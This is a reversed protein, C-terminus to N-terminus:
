NAGRLARRELSSSRSQPEVHRWMSPSFTAGNPGELRGSQNRLVATLCHRGFRLPFASPAKGWASRIQWRALAATCHAPARSQGVRAAQTRRLAASLQGFNFSTEEQREAPGCVPRRRRKQAAQQPEHENPRAHIFFRLGMKIEMIEMKISQRRCHRQPGPAGAAWHEGKRGAKPRWSARSACTDPAGDPWSKRPLTDALSASLKCCCTLRNALPALKPGLPTNVTARQSERAAGALQRSALPSSELRKLGLTHNPPILPRGSVTHPQQHAPRGLALPTWNLATSSAVRLCREADSRLARATCLMPGLPVPRGAPVCLHARGVNARAASRAHRTPGLACV